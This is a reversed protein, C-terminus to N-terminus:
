TRSCKLAGPTEGDEEMEQILIKMIQIVTTDDGDPRHEFVAGGFLKDSRVRLYEGMLAIPGTEVTLKDAAMLEFNDEKKDVEQGVASDGATANGEVRIKQIAYHLAKNKSSSNKELAYQIM